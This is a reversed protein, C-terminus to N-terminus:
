LGARSKQKRLLVISVIAVLFTALLFYPSFYGFVTQFLQSELQEGNALPNSPNNRLAAITTAYAYGFLGYALNFALGKFSLVTARLKSDTVENLYHSVLFGNLFIGSYVLIMPLASWYPIFRGMLYLGVTVLIAILIYNFGKSKNKALSAGLKPMFVGLMALAAGVFGFTFEPLQVERYFGSTLTLVMRIVHDFLLGCLIVTFAIPTKCIWKGAAFTKRFCERISDKETANSAPANTEKMGIATVLACIGLLLTGILPLRIATERSVEFGLGIFDFVLNLKEYDYLIAGLSMAVVFAMSQLRMQRELVKPWQDEIGLDKLTDYALAEDAGSAAAEASGSLVRNAAFLYFVLTTASGIPAFSILLMEVIMIAAAIVVLNRRGITDAFAGSPVELIVISAAWITNLIAFQELSLGFDLFLITFVPYYFRANFFLRFAIFRKVNPLSLANIPATAKSVPTIFAPFTQRPLVIRQSSQDAFFYAGSPFLPAKTPLYNTQTREPQVLFPIASSKKIRDRQSSYELHLRRRLDLHFYSLGHSLNNRVHQLAHNM